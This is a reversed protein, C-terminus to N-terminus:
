YATGGRSQCPPRRPVELRTLFVIVSRKPFKAWQREYAHLYAWVHHDARSAMPPWSRSHPWPFRSSRGAELQLTIGTQESVFAYWEQLSEGDAVVDLDGMLPLCWELPLLAAPPMLLYRVWRWSTASVALYHM